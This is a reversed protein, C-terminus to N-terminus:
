MFCNQHLNPSEM